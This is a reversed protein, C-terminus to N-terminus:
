ISPARFEIEIMRLLTHGQQQFMKAMWKILQDIFQNFMYRTEVSKSQKIFDMSNVISFRRRSANPISKEVKSFCKDTYANMLVLPIEDGQEVNNNLAVESKSRKTNVFFMSDNHDNSLSNMLDPLALVEGDSFATNAYCFMVGTPPYANLFQKRISFLSAHDSISFGPVDIIELGTQLFASPFEVRVIKSAWEKFVSLYGENDVNAPRSLHQKLTTQLQRRTELNFTDSEITITENDICQLM